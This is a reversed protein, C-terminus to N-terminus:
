KVTIYKKSYDELAKSFQYDITENSYDVLEYQYEPVIVEKQSVKKTNSDIEISYKATFYVKNDVVKCGMGTKDVLESRYARNAPDVNLYVQSTYENYLDCNNEKPRSQFFAGLSFSFFLVGLLTLAKTKNSM